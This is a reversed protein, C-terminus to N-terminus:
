PSNLVEVDSGCEDDSDTLSLHLDNLGAKLEISWAPQDIEPLTEPDFADIEPGAVSLMFSTCFTEHIIAHLQM